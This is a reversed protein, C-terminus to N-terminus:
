PRPAKPKNPTFTMRKDAHYGTPGHTMLDITIQSRDAALQGIERLVIVGVHDAIRGDIYIIPHM